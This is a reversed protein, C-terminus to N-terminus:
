GCIRDEGHADGQSSSEIAGGDDTELYQVLAAVHPPPDETCVAEIAIKVPNGAEDLLPAAGEMAVKSRPVIASGLGLSVWEQLVGFGLAEGPYERLRLGRSAFLERTAAGSGLHRAGYRVDGRGRGHYARWRGRHRAIPPRGAPGAVLGRRLGAPAAM